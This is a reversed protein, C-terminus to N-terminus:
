NRVYTLFMPFMVILWQSIKLRRKPRWFCSPAIHCLIHYLLLLHSSYCACGRWRTMQLWQQTSGLGRGWRVIYRCLVPAYYHDLLKVLAVAKRHIWGSNEVVPCCCVVRFQSLTPLLALLGNMATLVIGNMDPQRKNQKKVCPPSFREWSIQIESHMHRRDM